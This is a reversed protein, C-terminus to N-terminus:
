KRSFAFYASGIGFVLIAAFTLLYNSAKGDLANQVLGSLGAGVAASGAVLLLQTRPNRSEIDEHARDFDGSEISNGNRQRAHIDARALLRLFYARSYEHFKTEAAPNIPLRNM